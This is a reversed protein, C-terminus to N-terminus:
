SKRRVKLLLLGVAILAIVAVFMSFVNTADASADTRFNWLSYILTESFASIFVAYLLRDTKSKVRNFLLYGIVIIVLPNLIYSAITLYLPVQSPEGGPAIYTWYFINAANYLQAVLFVGIFTRKSATDPVVNSHRRRLLLGIIIAVVLALLPAGEFLIRGWPYPITGFLNNILFNLAFTLTYIAMTLLAYLSGAFLKNARPAKRALLYGVAFGGGMIIVYNLYYILSPFVDHVFRQNIYWYYISSIVALITLAVGALTLTKESQTITKLKQKKVM